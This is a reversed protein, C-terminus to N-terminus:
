KKEESERKCLYKATRILEAKLSGLPYSEYVCLYHLAVGDLMALFLRAKKKSNVVEQRKFQSTITELLIEAREKQSRGIIDGLEPTVMLTLQLKLFQREDKLFSFYNDIFTDLLGETSDSVGLTNAVEKMKATYGEILDILLDDKSEYYNYVLGKSVGARETIQSITTSFYGNGEFLEMAADLIKQKGSQPRM